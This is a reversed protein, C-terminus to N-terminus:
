DGWDRAARVRAGSGNSFHMNSKQFREVHFYNTVKAACITSHEGFPDGNPSLNRRPAGRRNIRVM